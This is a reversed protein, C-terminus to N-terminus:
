FVFYKKSFVEDNCILNIIYVGQKLQHLSVSSCESFSDELLLQGRIDFVNMKMRKGQCGNLGVYGNDDVHILKDGDHKMKGLGTTTPDEDTIINKVYKTVYEMDNRILFNQGHDRMWTAPEIINKYFYGGDIANLFVCPKPCNKITNRHIIINRFGGAPALDGNSAELVVSIAAAQSRKLNQRFMCTEIYNGSIELNRSLGAEMWNFEPAIIIAGAGTYTIENNQIKGDSSKILIGRGPVHGIKNNIVRFGAGIRNTSYIVDGPVVNGIKGWDEASFRVMVTKVYRTDKIDKFYSLCKKIDEATPDTSLTVRTPKAEGRCIGDNSVIVVNEDKKITVDALNYDRTLIYLQKYENDVKYVPYFNGNIAIPDDNTYQITCEEITPGITAHKSHIGDAIGPRLRDQPYKPDGTKRDIVCRYYHTNECYHEAFHFAPSDYITIGSMTLNKCHNMIICHGVYTTPINNFVVYDGVGYTGVKPMTLNVQVKRNELYVIPDKIENAYLNWILERTEKDFFNVRNQVTEPNLMPYGEHIEVQLTKADASMYTITGQTSCPPDYEITLDSVLMDECYEFSFAQKQYNCIITSGNGKIQVNKKYSFLYPQKGDKLDLIYTGKPIDIVANNIQADLVARLDGSAEEAHSTCSLMGWFLLLGFSKIKHKM